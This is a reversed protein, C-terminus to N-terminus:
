VGYKKEFKLIISILFNDLKEKAFIIFKDPIKNYFAAAVSGSIALVTDSDGGISLSKKLTEEFSNSQFFCFLSQPVTDKCSETFSYNKRLSELNFNLNYGFQSEIEKKIFHKSNNKRALFVAYAVAQAGKIGEPHNHTCEASKKAELLVEEASNFAYGVPSVRMASGNGWSNYGKHQTKDEAWKQFLTGYGREPYRNYFKKLSEPYPTGNLISYAVACTLVTDDTFFSNEPLLNFESDHIDKFEYTSGAIDGIIAGFM